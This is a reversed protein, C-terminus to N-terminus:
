CNRFNVVLPVKWALNQNLLHVSITICNIGDQLDCPFPWYQYLTTTWLYLPAIRHVLAWAGALHVLPVTQHQLHWKSSPLPSNVFGHTFRQTPQVHCPTCNTSATIRYTSKKQTFLALLMSGRNWMSFFCCVEELECFFVVYVDVLLTLTLCASEDFIIIKNGAKSNEWNFYM